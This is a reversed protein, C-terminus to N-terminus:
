PRKRYPSYTEGYADILEALSFRGEEALGNKSHLRVAYDLRSASKAAETLIASHPTTEPPIGRWVLIDGARTDGELIMDYYGQLITEVDIGTYPSIAGNPAEKGGFTLGHCFYERGDDSKWTRIMKGNTLDIECRKGAVWKGQRWLSHLDIERLTDWRFIPNEM